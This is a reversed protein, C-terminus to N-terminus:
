NKLTAFFFSLYQPRILALNKRTAWPGLELHWRALLGVLRALLILDLLHSWRRKRLNLNTRGKIRSTKDPIISSNKSPQIGTWPRYDM